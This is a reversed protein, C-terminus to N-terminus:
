FVKKCACKSMSNGILKTLVPPMGLLLSINQASSAVQRCTKENSIVGKSKAVKLAAVLQWYLPNTKWVTCEISTLLGGLSFELNDSEESSTPEESPVPLWPTLIALPHDSLEGTQLITISANRAITIQHLTQTTEGPYVVVAETPQITVAQQHIQILPGPGGPFLDILYHDDGVEEVVGVVEYSDQQVSLKSESLTTM